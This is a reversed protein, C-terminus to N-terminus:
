TNLFLYTKPVFLENWQNPYMTLSSSLIIIGREVSEETFGFKKDFHLISMHKTKQLFTQKPPGQVAERNWFSRFAEGGEGEYKSLVKSTGIAINAM